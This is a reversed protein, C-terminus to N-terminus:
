VQQYILVNSLQEFIFNDIIIIIIFSRWLKRPIIIIKKTINDIM